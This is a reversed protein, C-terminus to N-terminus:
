AQRAAARRALLGIAARPGMLVTRGGPDTVRVVFTGALRTLMGAARAGDRAGGRVERACVVQVGAYDPHDQVSSPLDFMLGLRDPRDQEEGVADDLWLCRYDRCATPRGAYIECGAASPAAALLPLPRGLKVRSHACDQYVDKGLEPVAPIFCCAACAGCERQVASM